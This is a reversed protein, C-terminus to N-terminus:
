SECELSYKLSYRMRKESYVREVFTMERELIKVSGTNVEDVSAVIKNMNLTNFCYSILGKAIEGGIGKGWFQERLRYAIENDKTDNHYVGCIGIFDGGLKSEIAWLHFFRATDTYYSIFKELEVVSEEYNLAPKVYRMVNENSQMDYFDELDKIRLKRVIFRETEFIMVMGINGLVGVLWYGLLGIGM